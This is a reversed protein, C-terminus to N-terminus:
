HVNSFFNHLVLLECSVIAVCLSGLEVRTDQVDKDCSERNKVIITQVQEINKTKKKINKIWWVVRDIKQRVLWVRNIHM